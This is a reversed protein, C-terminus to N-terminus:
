PNTHTNIYIPMRYTNQVRTSRTLYVTGALAGLLAIVMNYLAPSYINGTHPNALVRVAVVVFFLSFLPWAVWMAYIAQWVSERSHVKYLRWGGYISLFISTCSILWMIAKSKAWLGYPLYAEAQEIGGLSSLLTGLSMLPWMVVMILILVLLWGGVGSKTGKYLMSERKSGARNVRKQLRINRFVVYYIILSGSIFLKQSIFHLACKLTAVAAYRPIFSIALVSSCRM